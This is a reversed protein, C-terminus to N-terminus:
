EDAKAADWIGLGNPLRYLSQMAKYDRASLTRATNEPYM